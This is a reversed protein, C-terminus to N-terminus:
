AAVTGFISFGGLFPPNVANKFTHFQILRPTTKDLFLLSALKRQFDRLKRDRTRIVAIEKIATLEANLDSLFLPDIVKHINEISTYHMGGSRRTEPNLTSEFVAGFITPSIEAWNFNESAKVLILDRIEDTFPPIEIDENAFLGGNVYPFAALTPNDDKLYPDRKEPPTDLIRFLDVIARRMERTNFAALYDHFMGHRGFIGADEAYLCFVLRVCLVNLSQMARESEPNAYQKAFADYLLGVIEGAAISVEMERKLHESGTDVLFQLRYYEKELNELLIKEPEGSPREMDYVYFEAFNCTVVWRPHQSLPLETIYRKAQQFPTLLTGDSQKIPKNLDKGLGKQEVLVKTSPITGDIFSTHDLHVQEEFTIFQEPHEIGYVDRLLSLWFPQSEGKEYGKGKWYAAFEKAAARQQADTM